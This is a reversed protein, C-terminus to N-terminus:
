LQLVPVIEFARIGVVKVDSKNFAFWSLDQEGEGTTQNPLSQPLPPLLM